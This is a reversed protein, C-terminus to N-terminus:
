EDTAEGNIARALALETRYFEPGLQAGGYADAILTAMKQLIGLQADVTRHLTVILEADNRNFCTAVDSSGAAVPGTYIERASQHRDAGQVWHTSEVPQTSMSKLETLNEIATQIEEVATM